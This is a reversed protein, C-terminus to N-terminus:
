RTAIAEADDAFAAAAAATADSELMRSLVSPAVTASAVGLLALDVLEGAERISAALIEVGSRQANLVAQMRGVVALPDQGSDRLRGLYVAVSRAGVSHAVLVQRATYVGTLTVQVGEGALTAAARYGHPTAVLKIHVREPDLAILERAQAVLGDADGATAQLHLEGAGAALIARALDGVGSASVRARRLLTPNTTVGAVFGTALAERVAELEATDVLIRM